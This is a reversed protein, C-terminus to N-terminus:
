SALWGDCIMVHRLILLRRSIFSTPRCLGIVRGNLASDIKLIKKSEVVSGDGERGGRRERGREEWGWAEGGTGEM